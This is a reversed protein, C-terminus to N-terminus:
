KVQDADDWKILVKGYHVSSTPGDKWNPGSVVKCMLSNLLNRLKEGNSKGPLMSFREAQEKTLRAAIYYETRGPKRYGKPRGRKKM